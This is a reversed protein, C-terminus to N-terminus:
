NQDDKIRKGASEGARMGSIVVWMINYGGCKGTVDVYELPTYAETDLLNWTIQGSSCHTLEVAQRRATRM